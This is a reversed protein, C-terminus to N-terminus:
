KTLKYAAIGFATAVNLSRKVGRMPIALQYDALALVGPDIGTIENGVVLVLKGSFGPKQYFGPKQKAGDGEELAVIICGENKLKAVADVANNYALWPISEEAGLATKAVKPHAPTPTIGCLHLCRLGAGDATRFISGVNYISRINDLLAEVHHRPPSTNAACSEPRDRLSLEAVITTPAGCRPCDDPKHGTDGSIPTPYRFRCGQDACQCIVFRKSQILRKLRNSCKKM